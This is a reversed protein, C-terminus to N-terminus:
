DFEIEIPFTYVQKTQGKADVYSKKYFGTADNQLEGEYEIALKYFSDKTLKERASITFFETTENFMSWNLQVASGNRHALHVSKIVLWRSHITIDNSSEVVFLDIAATGSFKSENKDVSTVLNIDYNQPRTNKPLHYKIGDVHENKNSFNNLKLNISREANACLLSCVLLFGFFNM